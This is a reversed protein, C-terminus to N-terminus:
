QGVPRPTANINALAEPDLQPDKATGCTAADSIKSTPDQIVKANAVGSVPRAGPLPGPLVANALVQAVAPDDGLSRAEVRSMRAVLANMFSLAAVHTAGSARLSHVIPAQETTVAADYAKSRPTLSRNQDRLVVIM